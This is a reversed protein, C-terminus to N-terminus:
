ESRHKPVLDAEQLATMGAFGAAAAGGVYLPLTRWDLKEEKPIKEDTNYYLLRFLELGGCALATIEPANKPNMLFGETEEQFLAKDEQEGEEERVEGGFIPTAQPVPVPEPEPQAEQADARRGLVAEIGLAAAGTLFARRSLEPSAM